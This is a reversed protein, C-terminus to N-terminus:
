RVRRACFIGRCIGRLGGFVGAFSLERLAFDFKFNFLEIFKRKEYM